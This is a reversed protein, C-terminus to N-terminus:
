MSTDVLPISIYLRLLVTPHIITSFLHLLLQEIFFLLSYKVADHFITLMKDGAWMCMSINERGFDMQKM